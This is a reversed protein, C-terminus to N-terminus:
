PPQAPIHTSHGFHIILSGYMQLQQLSIKLDDDILKERGCIVRHVEHTLQAAYEALEASQLKNDRM